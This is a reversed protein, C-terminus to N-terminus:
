DSREEWSNITVINLVPQLAVTAVARIKKYYGKSEGKVIIQRQNGGLDDITITCSNNGITLSIIGAGVGYNANLRLRRLTEELCGDAAYFAEGGKQATYGLELEGLGLLSASYAMTLAAVGIILVTLLASFGVPSTTSKFKSNLIM